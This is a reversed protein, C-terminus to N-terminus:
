LHMCSSIGRTIRKASTPLRIGKGCRAFLANTDDSELESSLEMAEANIDRHRLPELKRLFCLIRNLELVERVNTNGQNVAATEEVLKLISRRRLVVAGLGFELCEVKLMPQETLITEGQRM